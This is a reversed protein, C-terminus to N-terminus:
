WQLYTDTEPNFNSTYRAVGKTIRLSDIFGTYYNSAAYILAGIYHNSTSMLSGSLTTSIIQVGNIFLKIDVGNRTVACHNWTNLAYANNSSNINIDWSSGTTSM